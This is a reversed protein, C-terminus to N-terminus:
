KIFNSRIAITFYIKEELNKAVKQSLNSSTWSVYLNLVKGQVGTAIKLNALGCFLNKLM